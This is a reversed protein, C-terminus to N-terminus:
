LGQRPARKGPNLGATRLPAIGQTVPNGHAQRQADGVPQIKVFGVPRHSGGRYDAKGGDAAHDAFAKATNGAAQEAGARRQQQGAM